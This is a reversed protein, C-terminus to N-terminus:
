LLNNLIFIFPNILIQSNQTVIKKKKFFM